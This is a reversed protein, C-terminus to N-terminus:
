KLNKIDLPRELRKGRNTLKQIEDLPCSKAKECNKCRSKQPDGDEAYSTLKRVLM